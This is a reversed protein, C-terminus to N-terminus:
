AGCSNFRSAALLQVSAGGVKAADIPGGADQV